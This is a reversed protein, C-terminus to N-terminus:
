TATVCQLSSFSHGKTPPIDSTMLIRAPSIDVWSAGGAMPAGKKNIYMNSYVVPVYVDVDDLMGIIDFSQEFTGSETKFAKFM